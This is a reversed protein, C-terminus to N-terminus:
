SLLFHVEQQRLYKLVLLSYLWVIMGKFFSVRVSVWYRFGPDREGDILEDQPTDQARLKQRVARDRKANQM